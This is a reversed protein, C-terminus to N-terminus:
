LTQYDFEGTQANKRARLVAKGLILDVPHFSYRMFGDRYTISLVLERQKYYDRSAKYKERLHKQYSDILIADHWPKLENIIDDATMDQSVVMLAMRLKTDYVASQNNHAKYYGEDVKIVIFDNCEATHGAEYKKLLLVDGNLIGKPVMSIGAVGYTLEEAFTYTTGDVETSTGALEKVVDKVDVKYTPDGAAAYNGRVREMDKLRDALGFTVINEIFTSVKM